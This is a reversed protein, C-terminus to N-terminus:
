MKCLVPMMLENREKMQVTQVGESLFSFLSAALLIRYSVYTTKFSAMGDNTSEEIKMCAIKHRGESLFPNQFLSHILDQYKIETTLM